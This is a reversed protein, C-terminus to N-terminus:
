CEYVVSFGRCTPGSADVSSVTREMWESSMALMELEERLTTEDVLGGILTAVYCFVARGFIWAEVRIEGEEVAGHGM